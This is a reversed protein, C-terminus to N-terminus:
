KRLRLITPSMPEGARLAAFTKEDIEFREQCLDVVQEMLSPPVVVVGNEDGVMIDGPHIWLDGQFQLPIDIESARTFTNSGLVSTGRAFVLVRKDSSITKTQAYISNSMSSVLYGPAGEHGEDSRRYHRGTRGAAPSTYVHTRGLM